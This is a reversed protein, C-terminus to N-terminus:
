DPSPLIVWASVFEKLRPLLSRVRPTRQNCLRRRVRHVRRRHRRVPLRRRRCSRWAKPHRCGNAGMPSRKEDMWNRREAESSRRGGKRCNKADMPHCRKEGRALARRHLIAGSCRDHASWGRLVDRRRCHISLKRHYHKAVEMPCDDWCHAVDKWCASCVQPKPRRPRSAVARSVSLGDQHPRAVKRAVSCAPCEQRLRPVAKGAAQCVQPHRVAKRAVLCVPCERRLRPADMAAAQCVQPHRVAKRAVSCVPCERRLRPVAKGAASCVPCRFQVADRYWARGAGSYCHRRFNGPFRRLRQPLHRSLRRV